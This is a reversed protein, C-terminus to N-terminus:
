SVRSRGWPTARSSSVGAPTLRWSADPDKFYRVNAEERTENGTGINALLEAARDMDDAALAAKLEKSIANLRGPAYYAFDILAARREPRLKDYVEEGLWREVKGVHEPLTIHFLKEAGEETIPGIGLQANLRGTAAEDGANLAKM